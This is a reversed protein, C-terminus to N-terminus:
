HAKFKIHSLLTRVRGMLSPAAAPLHLFAGTKRVHAQDAGVTSRGTRMEPLDAPDILWLRSTGFGELFEDHAQFREISLPAGTIAAETALIYERRDVSNKMMRHVVIVPEGALEEFQRVQKIVIDGVHVFAKLKLDVINSCADCSCHGREARLQVLRDHFAPFFSRVQAFIDRAADVDGSETERFLLAADGELKNLVMPHRARDLVADILDTIVQEAHALTLTRETIFRTYGSIDIVVLFARSPRM